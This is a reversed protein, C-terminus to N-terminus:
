HFLEWLGKLYRACDRYLNMEFHYSVDENIVRICWTSNWNQREHQSPFSWWYPFIHMNNFDTPVQAVVEKEESRRRGSLTHCSLWRFLLFVKRENRESLKFSINNRILLSAAFTFLSKFLLSIWILKTFKVFCKIKRKCAYCSAKIFLLRNLYFDRKSTRRITTKGSSCVVNNMGDITGLEM